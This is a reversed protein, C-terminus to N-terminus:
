YKTILGVEKIRGEDQNLGCHCEQIEWYDTKPNIYEKLHRELKIITAKLHKFCELSDESKFSVQLYSDELTIFITISKISNSFDVITKVSNQEVEDLKSAKVYHAVFIPICCNVSNTIPYGQTCDFCAQDKSIFEMLVQAFYRLDM